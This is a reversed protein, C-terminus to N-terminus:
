ESFFKEELMGSLCHYIPLHYEQILHVEQVPVRICVDVLDAMRGGDKGTLGITKMGLM